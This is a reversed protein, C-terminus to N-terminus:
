PEGQGVSTILRADRTYTFYSWAWQFIAVLRNRFGVLFYIHVVLWLLWAIFGTLHFPGIDVIAYSRGVTALNGKNFYHFPRTLEEGAVRRKIVSAVYRGEQIAVPAVGPLPKGNQQLTATDGIVFINPHGPVSLDSAVKVRGARDVEAHLWKGAPSAGVGATWIITDAVIHEGPVTVGHEDIDLVPTNTRVEVGMRALRKQTKRALSEPFANLIRPLAEILIIRTKRPNIHRFESALTKHALEAIAGAMEVGTPGAGVLVFTLLEGIKAPNTELEASEFALLIKQRIARADEITKLGCVYQAWENHGFYNDQAGTALVLYDYPLSRDGMMVRQQEIDIGTVEAMVVETNKQKRLIHRIPSSIDAPSLGATAVWYLLPQFLHHNTRDILTVGVPADRLGLAVHLGGFGAGVIVVRPIVRPLHEEVAEITAPAIMEDRGIDSNQVETM